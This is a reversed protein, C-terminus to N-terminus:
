KGIAAIYLALEEAIPQPLQKIVRHLQANRPHALLFIDANEPRQQLIWELAEKTSFEPYCIGKVLLAEKSNLRNLFQYKSPKEITWFEPNRTLERFCEILIYSEEDQESKRALYELSDANYQLAAKRFWKEAELLVDLSLAPLLYVGLRYQSLACGQEAAILYLRKAEANCHKLSYRDLM